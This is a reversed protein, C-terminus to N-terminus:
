ASTGSYEIDAGDSEAPITRSCHASSVRRHKGEVHHHHYFTKSFLSKIVNGNHSSSANSSNSRDRSSPQPGDSISMSEESELNNGESQNSRMSPHRGVVEVSSSSGSVNITGSSSGVKGEREYQNVVNNIKSSSSNGRKMEGSGGSHRLQNVLRGLSSNKKTDKSGSGSKSSSSSGTGTSSSNTATLSTKTNSGTPFTGTSSSDERWKPSEDQGCLFYM